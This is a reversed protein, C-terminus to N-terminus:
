IAWGFILGLISVVVIAGFAIVFFIEGKCAEWNSVDLKKEMAALTKMGAAHFERQAKHIRDATEKCEERTPLKVVYRKTDDSM